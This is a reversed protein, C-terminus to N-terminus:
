KIIIEYPMRAYFRESTAFDWDKFAKGIGEFPTGKLTSNVAKRKAFVSEEEGMGVMELIADIQSVPKPYAEIGWSSLEADGGAVAAYHIADELTGIEDVLGIKLGDAGTWVRGQALSDVYTPRLDRGEAVTNVFTDYIREVSAQMYEVEDDSLPRMASYLDTHPSSGVTVVNVHAVDKVTKSLDPIMSFVGISGTLTTEDSFIKDCSNSIWYGGSAAYDGYSAIVPKEARLLDIEKKIKDSATVSGGPSSVRFVVAKVDKDKRVKEILSAFRDGSVNSKASGEVISGEAYIVAIKKKAKTNPTVKASIYDAFPIMKVDKFDEVGALDALKSHLEERTFLEDALGNNLVDEPFNLSLNDIMQSLEEATFDRSEAIKSSMTKWISDIMEQNQELNEPSPANKVYMEGASKYKGHRILQVNVGFKDLIDKLFILQSGVGTMMPTSGAVSSMYIKDAVSHLYYSGVTPTETFAVVAKGSKRFNELAKRIEESLAMSISAADARLFIYKVSNDEAAKNIAQVADWIGIQTVTQGGSSILSTPDFSASSNGQESIAVKSLDMNLVGERPMVPKSGSASALSGFFGVMLFFGIITMLLLGCIVALVMKVFEKM